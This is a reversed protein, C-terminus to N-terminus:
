DLTGDIHMARRKLYNDIEKKEAVAKEISEFFEKSTCAYDSPAPVYGFLAYYAKNIQRRKMNIDDSM